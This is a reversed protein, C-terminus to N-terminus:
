VFVHESEGPPLLEAAKKALEADLTQPKYAGAHETGAKLYHDAIWFYVVNLVGPFLIMVFLLEVRINGQLPLFLIAGVHALWDGFFIMFYYIIVKAVTMIVLWAVVQNIWHVLGNVGEYVGSHKLSTWDWENAIYDILKLGWIALVLGLTTDVM